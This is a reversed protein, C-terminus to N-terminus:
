YPNIVQVSGYSQGDSLDESYVIDCEAREAASLILADWYSIGWEEKMDIARAVLSADIDVTAMTSLLMVERRARRCSLTKSVKQTITVFFESLVQASVVGSGARLL